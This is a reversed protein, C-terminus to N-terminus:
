WEHHHHHEQQHDWGGHRDWGTFYGPPPAPVGEPWVIDMSLKKGGLLRKEVHSRERPHAPLLAHPGPQRLYWELGFVGAMTFLAANRPSTVKSLHGFALMASAVKGMSNMPGDLWSEDRRLTADALFYYGYIGLGIWLYDKHRESAFREGINKMSLQTDAQSPM